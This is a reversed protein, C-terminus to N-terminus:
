IFNFNPSEKGLVAVLALSRRAVSARVRPHVAARRRAAAGGRVVARRLRCRVAAEGDTEPQGREVAARAGACPVPAGEAHGRRSAAARGM